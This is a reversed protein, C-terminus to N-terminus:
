DRGEFVALNKEYVLFQNEGVSNKRAGTEGDESLIGTGLSGSRLQRRLLRPSAWGAFSESLRQYAGWAEDRFAFIRLSM